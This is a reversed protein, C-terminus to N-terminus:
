ELNSLYTLERLRITICTPKIPKTVRKDECVAMRPKEMYEFLIHSFIKVSWQNGIEISIRTFGCVYENPMKTMM